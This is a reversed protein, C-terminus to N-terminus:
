TRQLRVTFHRLIPAEYEIVLGATIKEKRQYVNAMTAAVYDM